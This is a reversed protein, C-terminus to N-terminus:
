QGAVTQSKGLQLRFYTFNTQSVKVSIQALAAVEKVILLGLGKVKGNDVLEELSREKIPSNVMDVIYNPINAGSNAIILEEISQDIDTMYVRIQGNITFKAANDLLNHLIISLLLHDLKVQKEVPLDNFFVSGNRQITGLFLEVKEEVLDRIRIDEPTLQKGYVQVKSFNILQELMTGMRHSMGSTLSGIRLIQDSDGLEVLSPIKDLAFSMYKLPSQVDHSISAVIRSLVHLQKDKERKSLELGHLTRNLKETRQAVIQELQVNKAIISRLKYSHFAATSYVITLGTLLAAASIIWLNEYWKQPFDMLIRTTTYNDPGFGNLKRITLMYRGSHRESIQIKFDDNQLAVWDSELIPSGEKVISYFVKLNDSNGFYATSFFLEIDDAKDPIRVSENTVPIQKGNVELRDLIIHGDPAYRQVYRPQFWVMGKISPLSIYGNDLLVGCPQCSGNFENTALGQEMTYYGYYIGPPNEQRLQGGWNRRSAKMKLQAYQLLDDKSIQFLGRNTPVWLYGEGDDVACHPSSLYSTRDLPFSIAQNHGNWYMLGKNLATIWAQSQKFPHISKIYLGATGKILRSAANHPAFSFLGQATGILLQDSNQAQICTIERLSDNPFFEPETGAREPWLRYLGQNIVGVWIEGNPGESLAKIEHEFSWQVKVRTIGPAVHILRKYNKLWISGDKSKIMVRKDGPNLREIVPIKEHITPGGGPNAGIVQGTPTLVKDKSYPLQAYFVNDIAQGPTMLVKFQNKKLVYLGNVNSGLFVVESVSDYYIVDIGLAFLDFDRILLRASLSGNKQQDLIYLDKDVLLFAQESNGNWLLKQQKPSRILANKVRDNLAFEYSKGGYTQTFTGQQQSYYLRKGITFYNWLNPGPSACQYQRKWNEYYQIRRKNVLFFNGEGAGAMIMHHDNGSISNTVLDPLGVVFTIDDLTKVGLDASLIKRDRNQYYLSDIKVHGDQIRAAQQTEFRAFSAYSVKAREPRSKSSKPDSARESVRIASLRSNIVNLNTSNFVKFNRGDFRVLGDETALWIFGEADSSISKVSNQPLGNEATYQRVIYGTQGYATAQIILWLLQLLLLTRKM